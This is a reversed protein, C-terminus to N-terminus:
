LGQMAFELEKIKGLLLGQEKKLKRVVREYEAKQKDLAEQLEGEPATGGGEGKPEESVGNGKSTASLSSIPNVILGLGLDKFMRTSGALVGRLTAGRGSSGKSPGAAELETPPPANTTSELAHPDRLTVAVLVEGTPVGRLPVWGEWTVGDRLDKLSVEAEGLFDDKSFKDWDMVRLRILEGDGPFDYVRSWDWRPAVTALVRPTKDESGCFNIVCYPDSKGNKDAAILKRGEKVRVEVTPHKATVTGARSIWAPRERHRKFVLFVKGKGGELPHWAEYTEGLKVLSLDVEFHGIEDTSLRDQDMCSFRIYRMSPVDQVEMSFTENWVPALTKRQVATQYAGRGYRFKVFPDSAGSEDMAALDRAGVVTISLTQPELTPTAGAASGRSAKTKWDTVALTLYINGHEVLQLPVKVTWPVPSSDGSPAAQRRAMPENNPGLAWLATDGDPLYMIHVVAQGLIRNKRVDRVKFLINTHDDEFDTVCKLDWRPRSSKKAVLTEAVKKTEKSLDSLLSVEVVSDVLGTEDVSILDDCWQVVAELTGGVAKAGADSFNLGICKRIPESMTKEFLESMTNNMFTTLLDFVAPYQSGSINVTVTPRETFSFLVLRQSMIPLLRIRGVVNAETAMVKIDGLGKVGYCGIVVRLDEAFFKCTMEMSALSGDTRSFVQTDTLQPPSVGLTFTEVMVQEVVSNLSSTKEQLARQIMPVLNYCLKPELYGTWMGIMLKNLWAAKEMSTSPLKELLELDFVSRLRAVADAERRKSLMNTTYIAYGIPVWVAFRLLPVQSSFYEVSVGMAVPVALKYLFALVNTDGGSVGIDWFGGRSSSM